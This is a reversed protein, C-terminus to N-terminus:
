GKPAPSLPEAAESHDEPLESPGENLPGEQPDGANKPSFSLLQYGKEERASLHPCSDGEGERPM